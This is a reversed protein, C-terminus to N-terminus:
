FSHGMVFGLGGRGVRVTMHTDGSFRLGLGGYSINVSSQASKLEFGVKGFVADGGEIGPAHLDSADAYIASRDTTRYRMGLTLLTGSAVVNSGSSTMLGPISGTPRLGYSVTGLGMGLDAPGRSIWWRGQLETAGGSLGPPSPQAPGVPDTRVFRPAANLQGLHITEDAAWVRGAALASLSLLFPLATRRM